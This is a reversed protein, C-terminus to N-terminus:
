NKMKSIKDIEYFIRSRKGHSPVLSLNTQFVLGPANAINGCNASLSCSSGNEFLLGPLVKVAMM